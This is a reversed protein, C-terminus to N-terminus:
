GRQRGYKEVEGGIQRHHKGGGGIKKPERVMAVHTYMGELGCMTLDVHCEDVKQFGLREYLKVGQGDAQSTLYCVIGERDAQEFPWTVLLTAAGRRQHSPFTSLHSLM